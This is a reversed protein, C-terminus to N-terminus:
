NIGLFEGVAINGLIKHAVTSPHMDSGNKSYLYSQTKCNYGVKGWLDIFPYRLAGDRLLELAAKGENRAFNSGILTIARANPNLKYMKDLLFILAGLFTTRHEEFSKGDKYEWKARDFNDYDTNSFNTNNPVVDFVWLDADANETTFINEWTRYYDNYEGGPVYPLPADPIRVGQALYEAKSLCTSGNPLKSGDQNIHIGLGPVSTNVLKIGLKNCLEVVYSTTANSGFSVSTGLWVIKKGYWHNINASQMPMNEQLKIITNKMDRINEVDNILTVNISDKNYKVDDFTGIATTVAMKTANEPVRVKFNVVGGTFTDGNNVESIYGNNKDLFEVVYFKVNKIYVGNVTIKNGSTVDYFNTNYGTNNSFVGKNLYGRERSDKENDILETVKYMGSNLFTNEVNNFQTRVATGASDYITGDTGVRIDVTEANDVTPPQAVINDIRKREAELDIENAKTELQSNIENINNDVTTKNENIKNNLNTKTEEIKNSLQLQVNEDLIVKKLNEYEKKLKYALQTDIYKIQGIREEVEKLKSYLEKISTLDNENQKFLNDIDIQFKNNENSM